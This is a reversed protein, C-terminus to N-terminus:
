SAGEISTSFRCVNRGSEKAEYMAADAHRLLTIADRGNAPYMAVGVSCGVMVRHCLVDVPRGIEVILRQVVTKVADPSEPSSLIVVFEDGGVRAVTDVARIGASLRAAVERLLADGAAHGYEDNVPKFRDLDIFAVAVIRGDRAAAALALDLREDLVARNPLGTLIDQRAARELSEEYAKQATVDQLTEVAGIVAGGDGRLPAATFYLWRGGGPFHPFYDTAEWGGEILDSQKFKASYYQGLLQEAGDMVLDAMVPRSDPYFPRWHQQSGIMEAAPTGIIAECARNWHVIRHDADIVFMPVPCRQIVESLVTEATKRSTIDTLTEIAGVIRGQADRLPSANFFLWKGDKALHPFFDEIDWGGDALVSPRYKGSYFRELQDQPYGILALDALLPRETPYFVAWARDTGVVEAASVGTLLECARNWRVVRRDGDIVFMAVPMADVVLNAWAM